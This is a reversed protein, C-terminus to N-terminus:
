ADWEVDSGEGVFRKGSALAHVAAVEDETLEFDFIDFNARRREPSASKPITAVRPQQVLWRLAVQEPTKGHKEGLRRLLPSDGVLGEALPRYATLLLDLEEAQELLRGQALFPHYEVQNCFIRTVESARSVLGSPFNSVGVHTVLGEDQLEALAELTEMLPGEGTPWHMLMLDVRETALRELSELVSERTRTRGYNRARVKSVLFIEDRPVGAAVIARGVEAENEYSQATDIHRYGIELADTVGEVCAAGKLRYTGFGLAPVRMGQIEHEIVPDPRGSM